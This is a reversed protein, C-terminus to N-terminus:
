PEKKTGVPNFRVVWLVACCLGFLVIVLYFAIPFNDVPKGNVMYSLNWKSKNIVTGRPLGRPLSADTPGVIYSASEGSQSLVIYTSSCRNNEPQICATASSVITGNVEIAARQYIQKGAFMWSLLAILLLANFRPQTL